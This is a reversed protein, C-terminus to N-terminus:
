ARNRKLRWFRVLVYGSIVSQVILYSLGVGLIGLKLILFYFIGLTALVTAITIIILEAIRLKVRLYVTYFSNLTIFVGSIALISLLLHGRTSYDKGFLLLLKDGFILIFAISPILLLYAHKIAKKLNPIFTEEKFSGEAFLSRSLEGPIVFLLSAIAFTVYFYANDEPTLFHLIILTLISTLASGLLNIIYNGGSFHLIENIIEKRIVPYPIYSPIVKRSFLFISILFAITMSIGWSGFIGFTAFIPALFIPLPIKLCAFITNQLLTYKANRLAIFVNTLITLLGFITTFVIFAFTYLTSDKVFNLKQAWIDISVLFVISILITAIGVVTLCTNIFLGKDKKNSLFRIISFDMGFRSISTVIGASSILAVALGIDSADYFRAVVIWFFFGLGSGIISNAMLYYYNRYLSDKLHQKLEKRNKPITLKM